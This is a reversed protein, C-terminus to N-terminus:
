WRTGFELVWYNGYKSNPGFAHGLGIESADPSLINERHAPSNMWADVVADPTKRGAHLNEALFTWTTYGAAEARSRADTGNPAQHAFFNADAMYEAYAQADVELQDNIALPALGAAARQQNVLDVVQAQEALVADSPAASASGVTLSAAVAAVAAARALWPSLKPM